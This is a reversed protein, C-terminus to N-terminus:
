PIGRKKGRKQGKFSITTPPYLAQPVVKSRIATTSIETNFYQPHRTHDAKLAHHHAYHHAALLTPLATTLVGRPDSCLDCNEDNMHFNPRSLHIAEERSWQEAM